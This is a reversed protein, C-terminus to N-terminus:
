TQIQKERTIIKTNSITIIIIDSISTVFAINNPLKKQM